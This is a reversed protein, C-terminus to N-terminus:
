AHENEKDEFGFVKHLAEKVRKRVTGIRWVRSCVWDIGPAPDKDYGLVKLAVEEVQEDTVKLASSAAALLTCRYCRGHGDFDDLGYAANYLNTDSCSTRGHEPAIKNIYPTVYNPATPQVKKKQKKPLNQPAPSIGEAVSRIISSSARPMKAELTVHGTTRESKHPKDRM